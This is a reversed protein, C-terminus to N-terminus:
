YYYCFAKTGSHLHPVQARGTEQEQSSRGLGAAERRRVAGSSPGSLLHASAGEVVLFDAFFYETHLLLLLLLLLLSVLNVETTYTKARSSRCRAHVLASLLFYHLYCLICVCVCYTDNIGGRPLILALPM